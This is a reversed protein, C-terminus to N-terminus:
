EIEITKLNPQIKTVEVRLFGNKYKADVEGGVFKAPLRIVREFPGYNIEMHHFMPSTPPLIEKRQGQIIITNEIQKISIKEVSIGAIEALIILRDKTEFVDVPPHWKNLEDMLSPLHMQSFGALLRIVDDEVSKPDKLIISM